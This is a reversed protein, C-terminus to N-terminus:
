LDIKFKNSENGTTTGEENKVIKGEKEGTPIGSNSPSNIYIVAGAILIGAIVIAGAIMLYNNSNVM